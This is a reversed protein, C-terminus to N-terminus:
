IFTPPNASFADSLTSETSYIYEGEAGDMTIYFPWNLVEGHGEQPNNLKFDSRAYIHMLTGWGNIGYINTVYVGDAIETIEDSYFAEFNKESFDPKEGLYGYEAMSDNEMCTSIWSDFSGAKLRYLASEINPAICWLTVLVAAFVATLTCLVTKARNQRLKKKLARLPVASKKTDAVPTKIKEAKERCKDCGAIHEEIFKKTDDSVMNEAYLPLLDKVISCENKM